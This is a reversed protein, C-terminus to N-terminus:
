FRDQMWSPGTREQMSHMWEKVGQCSEQFQCATKGRCSAELKEYKRQPIPSITIHTDAQILILMTMAPNEAVSNVEGAVGIDGAEIIGM